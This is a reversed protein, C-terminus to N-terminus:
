HQSGYTKPQWKPNPISESNVVRLIVRMVVPKLSFEFKAWKRRHLVVNMNRRKVCYTGGIRGGAPPVVDDSLRQNCAPYISQSGRVVQSDGYM